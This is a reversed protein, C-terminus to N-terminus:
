SERSIRRCEDDRDVEAYRTYKRAKNNNSHTKNSIM